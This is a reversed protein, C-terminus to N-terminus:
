LKARVSESKKNILCQPPVDQAPNHDFFGFPKLMFNLRAVPMLPYDEPRPIHTTGMTYWVVLDQDVLSRNAQTWKYVGEGGPHQNPYEGAPFMEREAFPTVWVHYDIFRARQRWWADAAAFPVTNEGAILSYAVPQNLANMKQANEIRWSRASELCVKSRAQLENEFLTKEAFFGNKYPNKTDPKVDVQYVRNKPGDIAFDLRMGFIHQHYPACVQPAITTGYKSVENPQLAGLSM